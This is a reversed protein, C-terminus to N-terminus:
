PSSCEAQCTCSLEECLRGQTSQRRRYFAASCPRGVRCLRVRDGAREGVRQRQWQGSWVHRASDCACSEGGHPEAARTCTRTGSTSLGARAAYRASGGARCLRVRHLCCGPVPCFPQLYSRLRPGCGVQLAENAAVHRQTEAKAQALQKGQRQFAQQLRGVQNMMEQVSAIM